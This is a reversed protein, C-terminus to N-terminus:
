GNERISQETRIQSMSTNSVVTHSIGEDLVQLIRELNEPEDV